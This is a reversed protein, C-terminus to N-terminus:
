EKSFDKYNVENGNEDWYTWKGSEKDNTYFGEYRKQKNPYWTITKGNKKGNEFTTESWPANNEYWSKWLGERKGDKMSGQMEIGGSTYHKIYEGNQIISDKKLSGTISTGMTDHQVNKNETTTQSANNCASLGIIVFLIYLNTKM